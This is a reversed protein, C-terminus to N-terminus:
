YGLDALVDEMEEAAHAEGTRRAIRIGEELVAVAERQQERQSLLLALQHYAAVYNPDLAIVERYKAAADAVRGLAAYEMAIAYHTFADSPDEQLFKQLEDLRSPRM